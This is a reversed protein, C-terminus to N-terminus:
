GPDNGPYAGLNVLSVRSSFAGWVVCKRSRYYYHTYGMLDGYAENEVLRDPTGFAHRFAEYTTLDDFVRLHEGYLAFGAVVSAVIKFSIKEKFHVTGSHQVVSDIVENMPLRRGDADYYEPDIGTASRGNAVLPSFTVERIRHRPIASSEAGFPVGALSLDTLDLEQRQLCPIDDLIELM